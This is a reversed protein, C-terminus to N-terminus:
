PAKRTPPRCKRALQRQTHRWVVLATKDVLSQNEEGAPIHKVWLPFDTDRMNRGVQKYGFLALWRRHLTVRGTTVINFSATYGLGPVDTLKAHQCYIASFRYKSIFPRYRAIVDPRAALAEAYLWSSTSPRPGFETRFPCFAGALVAKYEDEHLPISISVACPNNKPGAWVVSWPVSERVALLRKTYWEISVGVTAESLKIADLDSISSTSLKRGQYIFLWEVITSVKELPCPRVGKEPLPYPDAMERIGTIGKDLPDPTADSVADILQDISLNSPHLGLTILYRQFPGFAGTHVSQQQESQLWQEMIKKLYTIPVPDGSCLRTYKSHAGWPIGLVKRNEAFFSRAPIQAFPFGPKLSREEERKGM